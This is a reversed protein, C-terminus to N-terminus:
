QTVSDEVGLFDAIECELLDHVSRSGGVLRSAEAGVGFTLAASAAAQRVRDDAGLGLYDYNAFSVFRGARARVDAQLADLPQFYVEKLAAVNEELSGHRLLTGGAIRMRRWIYEDLSRTNSM